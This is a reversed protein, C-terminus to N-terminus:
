KPFPRDFFIALRCAAVFRRFMKSFRSGSSFFARSLRGSPCTVSGKRNEQKMADNEQRSHIQSNEIEDSIGDIVVSLWRYYHLNVRVVM